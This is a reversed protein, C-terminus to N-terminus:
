SGTSNGDQRRVAVPADGGVPLKRAPPHMPTSLAPDEGKTAAPLAAFDLDHTFVVYGNERAWAMIDRDSATSVGVRSWHVAKLGTKAFVEVVPAAFEHRDLNENCPWRCDREEASWAAYSLAELIDKRELSPYDALVEDNTKGSCSIGCDGGGDGANGSHLSGVWLMPNFSIRIPNQM